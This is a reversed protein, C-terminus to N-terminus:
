AGNAVATIENLLVRLADSEAQDGFRDVVEFGLKGGARPPFLWLVRRIVEARQQGLVLVGGLGVAHELHLLLQVLGFHHQVLCQLRHELSVFLQILQYGLAIM